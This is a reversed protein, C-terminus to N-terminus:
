PQAAIPQTVIEPGDHHFRRVWGGQAQRVPWSARQRTLQATRLMSIDLHYGPHARTRTHRRDTPRGSPLGPGHQGIRQSQQCCRHALPCHSPIMLAIRRTSTQRQVQGIEPLARRRSPLSTPDCEVGSVKMKPAKSKQGQPKPSPAAPNLWTSMVTSTVWPHRPARIQQVSSFAATSLMGVCQGKNRYVKRLSEQLSSCPILPSGPTIM